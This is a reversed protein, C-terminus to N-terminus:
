FRFAMCSGCWYLDLLDGTTTNLRFIKADQHRENQAFTAFVLANEEMWSPHICQEFHLGAAPPLPLPDISSGPHSPVFIEQVVRSSIQGSKMTAFGTALSVNWWSGGTSSRESQTVYSLTEGSPSFSLQGVITADGELPIFHQNNNSEATSATSSFIAIAPCSSQYAPQKNTKCIPDDARWAVAALTHGDPSVALELNPQAGPRAGLANITTISSPPNPSIGTAVRVNVSGETAPDKVIYALQYTTNSTAAAALMAHWSFSLFNAMM